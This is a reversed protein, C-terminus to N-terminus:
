VGARVVIFPAWFVPESEAQRAMARKAARLAGGADAGEALEEYFRGVLPVSPEGIPWLTAVVADAGAALFARGLSLVGEGALLRGGGTDCGSLVVLSGVLSLAGVDLAYLRSATGDPGGLTVFARAPESPNPHAHAAFHLVSYGSAARLVAEPTAADGQLISSRAAGVARAVAGVEGASGQAGSSAEAPGAVALVKLPRRAARRGMPSPDAAVQVEYREMLYARASGPPSTVLADFPLLHLPGDPLLVLRPRGRLLPEIPAILDRYLRHALEADFRTRGLDLRSGVRPALASLLEIVASRLSDAPIPLRAVRADHDTLVLAVVGEPLVAFDVLARDEGLARQLAAVGASSGVPPTRGRRRRSWALWREAQGPGPDAVVLALARDTIASRAAQYGARAVDLSLGRAVSDALTWSREFALDAAVTAGALALIEGEALWVDSELAPVAHRAVEARIARIDILSAATAERGPDADARARGLAAAARARLATDHDGVSAAARAASDALAAAAAHDGTGARLGAEDLTLRAWATVQSGESSRRRAAVLTQEAELTRGARALVGPLLPRGSPDVALLRGDHTRAEAIAGVTDALAEALRVLAASARVGDQTAPSQLRYYAAARELDGNLEFYEGAYFAYDGLSDITAVMAELLSDGAARAGERRLFWGLDRYAIMRVPVASSRRTLAVFAQGAALADATRGDAEYLHHLNHEAEYAPRMLPSRSALGRAELLDREADAGRGLMVLARGHRLRGEARWGPLDLSDALRILEDWEALSERPRGQSLLSEGIWMGLSIRKGVDGDSQIRRLRAQKRVNASDLHAVTEPVPYASANLHLSALMTYVAGPGAADAEEEARAEARAAEVHRGLAHLAAGDHALAVVRVLISGRRAAAAAVSRVRPWAGATGLAELHWDLLTPSEPFLERLVETARAREEPLHVHRGGVVAAVLACPAEISRASDPISPDPTGDGAALVAAVCLALDRPRREALRAIAERRSPTLTTGDGFYHVLDVLAPLFTADAELSAHMAEFLSDGRLGVMADLGAAHLPRAADRPTPASPGQRAAGIEWAALAAIAV